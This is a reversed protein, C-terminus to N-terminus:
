FQFEGPATVHKTLNGLHSQRGIWPRERDRMGYVVVVVVVVLM